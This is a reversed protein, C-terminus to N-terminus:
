TFGKKIWFCYTSDKETAALLEDASRTLYLPIDRWSGSDTARVLLVEGVAMTKLRLRTKLLPLPCQLGEADLLYDYPISNSVVPAM